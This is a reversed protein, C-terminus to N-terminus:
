IQSISATPCESAARRVLEVEYESEPQKKVYVVLKEEDESFITPAILMCVHCDICNADVYYHRKTTLNVM